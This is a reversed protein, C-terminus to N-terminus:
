ESVGVQNEFQNSKQISSAKKIFSSQISFYDDPFEPWRIRSNKSGIRHMSHDYGRYSKITIDQGEDKLVNLLNETEVADISEDDPSLIALLPFQISTLTEMPTYDMIRRYSRSFSEEAPANFDDLNLSEFWSSARAESLVRKFQSWDGERIGSHWQRILLRVEQEVEHSMNAKRLQYVADWEAERAPSVAPGSSTIVFATHQWITGALPAIWGGQSHGYFGVSSVREQKRLFEAARVADSALAEFTVNDFDGDSEGVGRKDYILSAIGHEALTLAAFRNSDRTQPGSGHLFVVGPGSTSSTPLILSAGLKGAEGDILVREEQVSVQRQNKSLVIKAPEAFNSEHWTGIMVDGDIKLVIEQPGSDAFFIMKLADNEIVVSQAPWGVVGVDLLSMAASLNQEQNNISVAFRTKESDSRAAGEWEGIFNNAHAASM